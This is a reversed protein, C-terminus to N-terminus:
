STGALRRLFGDTGPDLVTPRDLGSLGPDTSVLAPAGGGGRASTRASPDLAGVVRVGGSSGSAATRGAPGAASWSPRLSTM